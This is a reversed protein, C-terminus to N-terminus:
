EGKIIQEITEVDVKYVEALEQKTMQKPYLFRIAKKDIDSMIRDLGQSSFTHSYFKMRNKRWSEKKESM